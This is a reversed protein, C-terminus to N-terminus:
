CGKCKEGKDIQQLTNFFPLSKIPITIREIRFYNSHEGSIWEEKIPIFNEDYYSDLEISRYEGTFKKFKYAIKYIVNNITLNHIAGEFCFETMFISNTEKMVGDYEYKICQNSKISLYPKSTQHNDSTTIKELGDPLLKYGEEDSFILSDGRFVYSLVNRNEKLDIFDMVIYRDIKNNHNYYVYVQRNKSHNSKDTKCGLSFIIFFILFGIVLIKSSLSLM